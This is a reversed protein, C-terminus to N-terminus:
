AYLVYLYVPWTYMLRDQCAKNSSRTGQIFTTQVSATCVHAWLLVQMTFGNVSIDLTEHFDQCTRKWLLWETKNVTQVYNLCEDKLAQMCGEEVNSLSFHHRM